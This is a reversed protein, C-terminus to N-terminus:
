PAQGTWPSRLNWTPLARALHPPGNVSLRGSRILHAWEARGVHWEALAVSKTEVILDDDGGPHRVCVEANNRDFILWLRDHPQRQDAFDFRVQVRRDPLRDVALYRSAWNQLLFGPDSTTPDLGLHEEAWDGMALLVPALAVGADTPHYTNGHGDPKPVTRVVGSRELDGLRRVLTSRSLGPAGDLQAAFTDAGSILNRLIIPTWPEALIEAARAIPCYQRYSRM